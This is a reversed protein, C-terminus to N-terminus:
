ITLQSECLLNGASLFSLTFPQSITVCLRCFAVSHQPTSPSRQAACCRENPIILMHISQSTYVFVTICFISTPFLANIAVLSHSAISSLSYKFRSSRFLSQTCGLSSAWSSSRTLLLQSQTPWLQAQTCIAAFDCLSSMSVAALQVGWSTQKRQARGKCM